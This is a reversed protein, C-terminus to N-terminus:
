ILNKHVFLRPHSGNVHRDACSFLPNSSSGGRSIFARWKSELRVLNFRDVLRKIGASEERKTNRQKLRSTPAETIVGSVSATNIAGSDRKNSSDREQGDREVVVSVKDSSSSTSTSKKTWGADLLEYWQIQCLLEREILCLQQAILESRYRLVFPLTRPEEPVSHMPSRESPHLLPLDVSQHLQSQSTSTQLGHRSRHIELLNSTARRTLSPAKSSSSDMNLVNRLPKSQTQQSHDTLDSDRVSSLHRTSLTNPENAEFSAARQLHPESKSRGRSLTNQVLRTPPTHLEPGSHAETM